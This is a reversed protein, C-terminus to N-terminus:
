TSCKQLTSIAPFPDYFARESLVPNPTRISRFLCYEEKSLLDDYANALLINWIKRQLLSIQNASVQIAGSHKIVEKKEM